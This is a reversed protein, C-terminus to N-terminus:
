REPNNKEYKIEWMDTLLSKLLDDGVCDIMKKSEEKSEYSRADTNRLDKIVSQIKTRAFEGITNEMFFNETFLEGINGAFTNKEKIVQMTSGDSQKELYIIYDNTVDSLIFPSHTSVVLTIKRDTFNGEAKLIEKTEKLSKLFINIFCRCWEPHLYTEPEDICLVSKEPAKLFDYLQYRYRFEQLEGSSLDKVHRESGNFKAYGDFCLLSDLEIEPENFDFVEELTQNYADNLERLKGKVNKLESVDYEKQFIKNQLSCVMKYKEDAMNSIHEDLLGLFPRDDGDTKNENYLMVFGKMVVDNSLSYLLVPNREIEDKSDLVKRVLEAQLESDDAFHLKSIREDLDDIKVRFHSFAKDTDPLIGDFLRQNDVYYELIHQLSFDEHRMNYASDHEILKEHELTNLKKNDFKVTLKETAFFNDKEDKYLYVVNEGKHQIADLLTSKGCGNKGCVVTLSLNENGFLDVFDKKRTVELYLGDRSKDFSVDYKPSLCFGQEKFIKFNKIYIYILELKKMDVEMDKECFLLGLYKDM